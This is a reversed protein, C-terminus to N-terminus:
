SLIAQNVEVLSNDHRGDSTERDGGAEGHSSPPVGGPGGGRGEDVGGGGLLINVRSGLKDSSSSGGDSDSTGSCSDSGNESRQDDTISSVGRELLLEEGISNKSESEGLGHSQKTQHHCEKKEKSKLKPREVM